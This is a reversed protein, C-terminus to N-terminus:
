IRVSIKNEQLYSKLDKIELEKYDQSRVSNICDAITREVNYAPIIVSVLEM